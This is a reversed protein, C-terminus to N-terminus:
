FDWMIEQSGCKSCKGALVLTKECCLYSHAIFGMQKLLRDVEKEDEATEIEGIVEFNKTEFGEANGCGMCEVPDFGEWGEAVDEIKGEFEKITIKAKM